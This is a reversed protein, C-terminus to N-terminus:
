SAVQKLYVSIYLENAKVNDKSCCSLNAEDTEYHHANDRIWTQKM